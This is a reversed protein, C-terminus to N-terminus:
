WLSRVRESVSMERKAGKSRSRSFSRLKKEIKRHTIPNNDDDAEFVGDGKEEEMVYEGKENAYVSTLPRPKNRKKFRDHVASTNKGSKELTEELDQLEMNRPHARRNAKLRHETKLAAKKSSIQKQAELMDPDEELGMDETIPRGLLLMEEEQELEMLKKEIDIDVFDAVNKGEFFEPMIDYKWDPDELLFHEQLPFNFVGAGGQTEQVEKLTPRDLTLKQGVKISDPIVPPRDQRVSKPVAMYVGKLFKEEDKTQNSPINEQKNELRYNLM